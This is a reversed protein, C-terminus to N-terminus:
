IPQSFTIDKHTQHLKLLGLMPWSGLASPLSVPYLLLCLEIAFISTYKQQQLSFIKFDEDDDDDNSEDEDSKCFNEIGNAEM